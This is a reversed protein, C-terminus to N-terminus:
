SSGRFSASRHWSFYPESAQTHAQCHQGAMQQLHARLQGAPATHLPITQIRGDPSVTIWGAEYLADCGFTCALM